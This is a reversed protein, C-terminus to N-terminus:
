RDLIKTIDSTVLLSNLACSNNSPVLEGAQKIQCAVIKKGDGPEKSLARELEGLTIEKNGIYFKRTNFGGDISLGNTKQPDYFGIIALKKGENLGEGDFTERGYVLTSSAKIHMGGKTIYIRSM